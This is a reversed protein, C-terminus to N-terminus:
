HRPWLHPSRSTHTVALIAIIADRQAFFVGTPSGRSFRGGSMPSFWARPDAAVPLAMWLM